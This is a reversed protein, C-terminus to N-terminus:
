RPRTSSSPRPSTARSTSSSAASRAAATRPRADALGPESVDLIALADGLEGQFAVVLSLTIAIQGALPPDDLEMALEWARDLEARATVCSASSATPWGSRGCPSRRLARHRIPPWCRRARRLAASPDRQVGLVLQEPDDLEDDVM